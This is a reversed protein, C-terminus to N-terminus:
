SGLIAIDYEDFPGLFVIRIGDELRAFYHDDLLTVEEGTLARGAVVLEVADDADVVHVTAVPPFKDYVDRIVTQLDIDSLATYSAPDLVVVVTDGAAGDTRLAIEYEPPGIGATSTTTSDTGGAPAESTASGAVSGPTSGDSAALTTVPDLSTTTTSEGEDGSCAAVMLAYAVVVILIRAWARM